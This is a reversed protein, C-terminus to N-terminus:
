KPLDKLYIHYPPLGAEKLKRDLTKLYNRQRKDIAVTHKQPGYLPHRKHMENRLAKEDETLKPWKKPRGPYVRGIYELRCLTAVNYQVTRLSVGM